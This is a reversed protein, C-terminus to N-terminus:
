YDIANKCLRKVEKQLVDKERCRSAIIGRTSTTMSSLEYVTGDYMTIYQYVYSGGVTRPRSQIYYSEEQNVLRTNIYGGSQTATIPKLHKEQIKNM